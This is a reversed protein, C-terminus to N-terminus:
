LTELWANVADLLAENQENMYHDGEELILQKSKSNGAQQIAQWREAAGRQVAPYDLAGYLDLVPVQLKELPFPARMPQKYDTAGMGIGIYADIGQDGHERVWAMSMHVGCSHAILVITDNGQEKLYRIGAEIRPIAEPFVPEYDYYKAQKDLVPMQLSLTNWGHGTLGVRLPNAVQEWDPHYGRGHLILAAGRAPERDTETHIAFFRQGDADLEIPEGEFIVDVIQDALRQERELDSPAATGPLWALCPLLFWRLAYRHAVGPDTLSTRIM